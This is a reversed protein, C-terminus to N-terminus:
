RCGCGCRASRPCRCRCSCRNSRPWNAGLHRDVHKCSQDRRGYRQALVACVMLQIQHFLLLPLVIMGVSQGAYLEPTVLRLALPKMLWGLLPFLVFAGCLVLVHLTWHTAGAVIAERPLKAGHLFFLLAKAVSAVAPRHQCCPGFLAARQRPLRHFPHRRHFQGAPLQPPDHLAVPSFSPLFLRYPICGGFECKSDLCYKYKSRQRRNLQFNAVINLFIHRFAKCM